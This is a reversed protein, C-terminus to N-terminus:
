ARREHGRVELNNNKITLLKQLKGIQEQAPARVFLM